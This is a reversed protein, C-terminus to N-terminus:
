AARRIWSNSVPRKTDPPAETWELGRRVRAATQEDGPVAGGLNLLASAVYDPVTYTEGKRYAVDNVRCSTRMKISASM